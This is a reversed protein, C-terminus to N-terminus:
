KDPKQRPNAVRELNMVFFKTIYPKARDVCDPSKGIKNFVIGHPSDNNTFMVVFTQGLVKRDRTFDKEIIYLTGSLTTDGSTVSITMSVAGSEEKQRNVTVEHTTGMFEPRSLLEEYEKKLSNLDTIM